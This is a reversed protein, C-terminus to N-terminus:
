EPHRYILSLNIRRLNLYEAIGQIVLLFPYFLLIFLINVITDKSIIIANVIGYGFTLEYVYAFGYVLGLILLFSSFLAAGEFIKINKLPKKFNTAFAILGLNQAEKSRNLDDINSYLFIAIWMLIFLQSVVIIPNLFVKRIGVFVAINIYEMEQIGLLPVMPLLAEVTSAIDKEQTHIHYKTYYEINIEDFLSKLQTYDMIVYFNNESREETDAITPWIGIIGQITFSLSNNLFNIPDDFGLDVDLFKKSVFVTNESLDDLQGFSLWNSRSWSKYYDLYDTINIGIIGQVREGEYSSDVIKITNGSLAFSYSDTSNGFGNTWILKTYALIEPIAQLNDEMLTTNLPRGFLMVEGGNWWLVAARQSDASFSANLIGASVITVMFSYLFIKSRLNKNWLKLLSAFPSFPRDQKKMRREYLKRGIYTILRIILTALFCIVVSITIFIAFAALSWPNRNLLWLVLVILLFPVPYLYKPILNFPKYIENLSQKYIKRRLYLDFDIYIAFIITFLIIVILGYGIIISRDLEITLGFILQIKTLLYTLALGIGASVVVIFLDELIFNVLRKIWKQGALLIRFEKNENSNQIKALSIIVLIVSLGWITLQLGRVFSYVINILVEDGTNYINEFNLDTSPSINQVDVLLIKEFSNIKLKADITWYIIDQQEKEFRLSGYLFYPNTSRTIYADFLTIFEEIQLFFCPKWTIIDPNPHSHESNEYEIDFYLEPFHAKFSKITLIKNPQLSANNERISFVFTSSSVNDLETLLIAGTSLSNNSSYFRLQTYLSTSVGYLVVSSPTENGYSTNLYNAFESAYLYSINPQYIDYTELSARKVSQNFTNIFSPDDTRGYLEIDPYYYGPDIKAEINGLYKALIHPNILQPLLAVTFSSLFILSLIIIVKFLYKRRDLFRYLLDWM